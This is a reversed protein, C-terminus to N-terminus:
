TRDTFIHILFGEKIKEPKEEEIQLSIMKGNDEIQYNAMESYVKKTSVLEYEYFTELPDLQGIQKVKKTKATKTFRVVKGHEKNNRFLKM